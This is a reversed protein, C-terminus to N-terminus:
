FWFETSIWYTCVVKLSKSIAQGCSYKLQPQFALLDELYVSHVPFRRVGVFIPPKVDQENIPVIGFAHATRVLWGANYKGCRRDIRDIRSCPMKFLLLESRTPTGEQVGAGKHRCQTQHLSIVATLCARMSHLEM